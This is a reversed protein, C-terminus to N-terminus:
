TLLKAVKLKTIILGIHDKNYMLGLDTYVSLQYLWLMLKILVTFQLKM